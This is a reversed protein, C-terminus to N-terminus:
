LRTAKRLSYYSVISGNQVCKRPDETPGYFRTNTYELICGFQYTETTRKLLWSFVRSISNFNKEKSCSIQM